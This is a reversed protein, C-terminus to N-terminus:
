ASRGNGGTPLSASAPLIGLRMAQVVAQARRSAPLKRYINRVHTRVTNISVVLEEAIQQYSYDSALLELVRREQETLLTPEPSTLLARTIAPSATPSLGPTQVLAALQPIELLVRVYGTEVALREAQLLTEAAAVPGSLQLQQWATLALVQLENFREGNDRARSLAEALAPTLAALGAGHAVAARLHSIQRREAHERPAHELDAQMIWWALESQGTATLFRTLLDLFFEVVGPSKAQGLLDVAAREDMTSEKNGLGYALGLLRALQILQEDQLQNALEMCSRQYSRAQDLHDQWYSNEAAFYYALALDDTGLYQDPPWKEFLERFRGSAESGHGGVMSWRALERRLAMAGVAIDAREFAALAAEACKLMEAQRGEYSHLRMQIFRLSGFHFDDLYSEFAQAQSVADSAAAFDRQIFFGGGRLVLWEAYHRAAYPNADQQARLTREADQAFGLAAKDGLLMALRCRDLMLQPRQALIEHPLLALLMQARYPTRLLTAGLESEVLKAAQDGARAALLHRVASEVQGNCALWDAARHHLGAVAGADAQAQLRHLLLEQFLHHYRYWKEREDFQILFLDARAIEDLKGYANDDGTVAACLPANFEDLISTQLLFRSLDPTQQRLVEDTLYEALWGAEGHLAQILEAASGHGHLALVALRLATVWGESREALQSAEQETLDVFGQRQLYERIEAPTFRLDRATLAAIRGHAYHRALPLSTRRRSLLLLHLTEPGQELMMAIAADVEDSRVRHLDDLVLLGHVDGPLAGSRVEDRYSAFLRALAREASGQSDELIPRVLVLAGPIIRDLAAALHHIFQRPDSDSEDLSLWATRADHGSVDVWRSVLSSKGYGTPAHIAIARLKSWRDLQRYLRPRDITAEPYTPRTIKAALLM